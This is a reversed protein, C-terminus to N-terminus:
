RIIHKLLLYHLLNGDSLCIYLARLRFPTSNVYHNYESRKLDGNYGNVIDLLFARLILIPSYIFSFHTQYIYWHDPKQNTFEIYM